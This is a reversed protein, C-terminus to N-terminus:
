FNNLSNIVFHKLNLVTEICNQNLKELKIFNELLVSNKLCTKIQDILNILKDLTNLLNYKFSYNGIALFKRPQSAFLALYENILHIQEINSLYEQTKQEIKMKVETLLSDKTISDNDLKFIRLINTFPETVEIKGLRILHAKRIFQCSIQNMFTQLDNKLQSRIELNVRNRRESKMKAFIKNKIFGFKSNISIFATPEYVVLSKQNKKCFYGDSSSHNEYFDTM